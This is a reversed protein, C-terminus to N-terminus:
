YLITPDFSDGCSVHVATPVVTGDDIATTGGVFDGTGTPNIITFGILAKNEPFPPFKVLALTAGERGMLTTKTGASDLFYCFVNFLANTVTGSLAAMDTSAAVKVLVGKVIYYTDSAGTKVLASAGAKIILGPGAASICGCSFRDAMVNFIKRLTERTLPGPVAALLQTVNGIM